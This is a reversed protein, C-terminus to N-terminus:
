GTLMEREGRRGHLGSGPAQGSTALPLAPKPLNIVTDYIADPMTSM